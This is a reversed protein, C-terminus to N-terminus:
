SFKLRIELMVNLFNLSLFFFLKRIFFFAKLAWDQSLNVIWGRSPESSNTAPMSGSEDYRKHNTMKEALIMDGYFGVWDQSTAKSFANLKAM